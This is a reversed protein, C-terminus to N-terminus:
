KMVLDVLGTGVKIPQGVIINEVVGQLTEKEGRFAADILLKITEEFAARAFPSSKGRTIGTRVIGRIEGDNTMMDALLSVHRPDVQIGNEKLVNRLENLIANRGAEIGLVKSIEKIDNTTTRSGDVENMKLIMKLNSGSTKVVVEGKEEVLIVKQIGKIGQLRVQALKLIKKRVKLLEETGIFFEMGHPIERVKFKLKKDIKDLIKKGDIGKERAEDEKIKVTFKRNKFDETINLIDSIREDVLSNAFMKAKERDQKLEGELYITMSPYRAKSRGDVIEEVRQIGSGVSVEAAGAFHKTRLTLQTGPEGMSQAAIIGVAEGPEARLTLYAEKVNELLHGLEKESLEHKKAYYKACKYINEPLGHQELYDVVPEHVKPKEEAAKKEVKEEKVEPKKMHDHKKDQGSHKKVEKKQVHGTKMKKDKEKKMM